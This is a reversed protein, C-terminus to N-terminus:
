KAKEFEYELPIVDEMKIGMNKLWEKNKIFWDLQNKKILYYAVLNDQDLKVIDKESIGLQRLMAEAEEHLAEANQCEKDIEKLKNYMPTIGKFTGVLTGAGFVLSGLGLISTLMKIVVLFNM